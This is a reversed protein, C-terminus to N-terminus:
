DKYPLSHQMLASLGLCLSVGNYEPVKIWVFVSDSVVKLPHSLLFTMVQYFDLSLLNEYPM